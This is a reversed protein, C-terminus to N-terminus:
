NGVSTELIFQVAEGLDKKIPYGPGVESAHSSGHGTLIYIGKAGANTACFMDSPHDGIMFSQSLDIGFEVAAQKLFHPSPKKCVCNDENKHPCYYLRAIEIGHMALENLVFSNVQDVQEKTVIGKGIGSQNSVIFLKFHSQLKQLAEFTFGFFSVQSPASLFGADEILTGDRDLFVAKTM